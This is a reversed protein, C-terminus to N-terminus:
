AETNKARGAETGEGGTEGRGALALTFTDDIMPVAGYGGNLYRRERNEDQRPRFDSLPYLSSEGFENKAVFWIQDRKLIDEGARRGLLSVDHSTFLLQAGHPNRLPDQFLAVLFASLRPHLSSGLEDVVLTGGQRAVDELTFAYEVLAQTGASEAHLPVEFPGNRGTHRLLLEHRTRRQTRPLDFLVDKGSDRATTRSATLAEEEVSEVRLDEIGLDAVLLLDRLHAPEGFADLRQALRRLTMLRHRSLGPVVSGGGFVLKRRFWQYVPNVAEIALRSRAAMSLLLANSATVDAVTRLEKERDQTSGVRLPKDGEREFVVRKRGEPYAYLWESVVCEDDVEFGYVYRVGRVLLDAVYWSSDTDAIDALFPHRNLGEGDEALLHSHNVMEAMYRLAHVVNSKGAANSGFVGAVPVAEWKTGAPRDGEYVPQLQWELEERISRHNAVRFNLLM